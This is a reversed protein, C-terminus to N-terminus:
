LDCDNARSPGCSSFFGAGTTPVNQLGNLVLWQPQQHQQRQQKLQNWTELCINSSEATVAATAGAAAIATATAAAATPPGYQEHSKGISRPGTLLVWHPMTQVGGMSWYQQSTQALQCAADACLQAAVQAQNATGLSALGLCNCPRAEHAGEKLLCAACRNGTM